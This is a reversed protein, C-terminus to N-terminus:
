QSAAKRRRSLRKSLAQPSIGLIGAAIAINGHSRHLAEQILSEVAQKLSPLRDPFAQTGSAEAIPSKDEARGMSNRFTQLSLTKEKQLSVANYIMSRLERVNGPFDYTSLLLLLEPPITLKKKQLDISAQDLFHDV